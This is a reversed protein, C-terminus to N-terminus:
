KEKDQPTEAPLEVDNAAMAEPQFKPQAKKFPNQGRLLRWMGKLVQWAVWIIGFIVLLVWLWYLFFSILADVFDQLFYILNQIADRAVGQPKWGAVELPQVSEEAVLRMSIASLAAAQEFYQMQGKTVEIQERYYALQQFIAVVDESKQANKMLETLEREAAEYNKLRSQLDTYQDTVDQGSRNESQIEVADAKIENLAEDLKEAPVRITISGEPVKNGRPSQTQYLNSSVVFGGMREALAIVAELKLKPDTVVVSLDVNQIVLRERAATLNASYEDSKSADFSQMVVPSEMPVSDPALPAGGGGAGYVMPEAGGAGSLGSNIPSFVEQQVACASLVLAALVFVLAIRKM